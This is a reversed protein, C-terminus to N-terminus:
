LGYYRHSLASTTRVATTTTTTVAPQVWVTQVPAAVVYTRRYAVASGYYNGYYRGYCGCGWNSGIALGFFLGIAGAVLPAIAEEGDDIKELTLGNLRMEDENELWLVEDNDVAADAQEESEVGRIIGIQGLKGTEGDQTEVESVSNVIITNDDVGGEAVRADNNGCSTNFILSFIMLGSVLKKM